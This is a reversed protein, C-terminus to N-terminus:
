LLICRLCPACCKNVKTFVTGGYGGIPDTERQVRGMVPNSLFAAFPEAGNELNSLNVKAFVTVGYNSIPKNERQVHGTVPNSLFAALPKAENELCAEYLTEPTYFRSSHKYVKFVPQKKEETYKKLDESINKEYKEIFTKVDAPLDINRVQLKNNRLCVLRQKTKNRSKVENVLQFEYIEV